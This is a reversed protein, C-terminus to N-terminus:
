RRDAFSDHRRSQALWITVLVKVRPNHYSVTTLLHSGLGVHAPQTV